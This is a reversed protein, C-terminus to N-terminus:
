KNKRSGKPQPGARLNKREGGATTTERGIVVVGVARGAENLIPSGSMGPETPDISDILLGGRQERGVQSNKSAM